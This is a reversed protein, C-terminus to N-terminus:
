DNGVEVETRALWAHNAYEEAGEEPPTGSAWRDMSVAYKERDERSFAAFSYCPYQIGVMLVGGRLCLAVQHGRRGAPNQMGGPPAPWRVAKDKNMLQGEKINLSRFRALALETPTPTPMPTMSRLLWWEVASPLVGVVGTLVMVITSINNAEVM